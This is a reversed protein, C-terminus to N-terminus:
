RREIEIGRQRRYHKAADSRPSREAALAECFHICVPLHAARDTEKIQMKDKNLQFSGHRAVRWSQGSRKPVSFGCCDGSEEMRGWMPVLDPPPILLTEELTEEVSIVGAKGREPCASSNFDGAMIDAFNEEAVNRLQDLLQKAVDRRKAATNSLHAPLILLRSKVSVYRFSYHKSAGPVEEEIKVGEPEFTNCLILQDAGQSRM